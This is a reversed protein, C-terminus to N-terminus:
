EMLDKPMIFDDEDILGMSKNYSLGMLVGTCMEASLWAANDPTAEESYNNGNGVMTLLCYGEEPTATAQVASDPTVPVPQEDPSSSPVAPESDTPTSPESTGEAEENKTETTENFPKTSEGDPWYLVASTAGAIVFAVALCMLMTGQLKVGSVTQVVDKKNM